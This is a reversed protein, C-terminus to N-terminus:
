GFPFVPDMSLSVPNCQHLSHEKLLYIIYEQQHMWLEQTTHLHVYQVGLHKVVPGLYVIGFYDTIHGKIWDLFKHNNCGALSDDIHWAIICIVHVGESNIHNYIFIAYNAECYLFGLHTLVACLLKYWDYAAQKLGYLLSLLHCVLTAKNHNFHEFNPLQHM